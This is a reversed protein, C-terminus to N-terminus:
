KAGGKLAAIIKQELADQERTQFGVQTAIIKGQADVLVSTPMGKIAYSRPTAGAPDFAVRFAAPLAGLFREADERKVDVNIAIIQLGQAAYKEQMANMWPFSQRCPACWSAWFDVYVLKGRLDALRVVGTVGPLEFSPAALDAAAAGTTLALLLSAVLARM